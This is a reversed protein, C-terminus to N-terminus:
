VSNGHFAEAAAAPPLFWGRSLPPATPAAGSVHALPPLAMRHGFLLSPSVDGSGLGPDVQSAPLDDALGAPGATLPSLHMVGIVVLGVVDHPQASPTVEILM